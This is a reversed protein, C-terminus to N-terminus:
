ALEEKYVFGLYRDELRNFYYLSVAIAILVLSTIALSPYYLLVATLFVVARSYELYFIWQRQELIAGCNILTLLIFCTVLGQLQWTLQHEFLIFFFLIVLSSVVQWVVYVNLENEQLNEEKRIKFKTELIGRVNPDMADPRGFLIAIKNRFGKATRAAYFLELLFHFHQWLFSHTNL